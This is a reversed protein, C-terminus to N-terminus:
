LLVSRCDSDFESVNRVEPELLENALLRERVRLPDVLTLVESMSFHFGSEMDLKM